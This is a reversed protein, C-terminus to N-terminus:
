VSPDYRSAAALMNATNPTAAFLSTMTSLQSLSFRFTM